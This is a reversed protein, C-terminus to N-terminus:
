AVGLALLRQRASAQHDPNHKSYLDQMCASPLHNILAATFMEVLIWLSFSSQELVTVKPKNSLAPFHSQNSPANALLM